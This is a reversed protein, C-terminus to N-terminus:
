FNKGFCVWVGVDRKDKMPTKGTHLTTNDTLKIGPNCMFLIAFLYIM